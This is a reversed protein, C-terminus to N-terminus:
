EVLAPVLQDGGEVGTQRAGNAGWCRVDQDTLVCAHSIGAVLQRATAGGLDLVEAHSRTAGGGLQGRDNEGWCHVSGGDTRACGSDRGLALEVVGTLPSGGATVVLAPELERDSTTERGLQGAQNRGWCSVQGSTQLACAFAGGVAVEAADTANALVPVRVPGMLNGRGTQGQHNRGWCRIEGGSRACATGEMADIADAPGPLMVPASTEREGAAGDGLQGFANTGWCHVTGDVTRACSFDTGSVIDTAPPLPTVTEPSPTREDVLTGNGPQTGWCRVAGDLLLACTHSWGGSVASVPELGAVREPAARNEAAVTGLAGLTGAGWCWLEGGTLVACTHFAGAEISEPVRCAGESCGFPCQEGCAGCHEPTGLAVECGNSIDGDCDERGEDCRIGCSGAACIASAGSADACREGCAGCHVVDTDNNVCSGACDEEAEACGEVCTGASCVQGEGCAIGCGGCNTPTRLDTECGSSADCNAFGPDCFYTCASDVCSAQQRPGGFCDAASECFNRSCGLAFDCQGAACLADDTQRFCSGAVCAATTCENDSACDADEDCSSDCSDPTEPSCREDVCAGNVCAFGADCVVGQCARDLVVTISSDGAFDVRVERRIVERGDAERLIVRLRLTGIDLGEFTAVRQPAVYSRGPEVPHEEGAVITAGEVLAVDVTDFEEGPVYDTQVAVQLLAGSTQCGDAVGGLVLAFTLWHARLVLRTWFRAHRPPDRHM